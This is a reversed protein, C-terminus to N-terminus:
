YASCYWNQQLSVEIEPRNVARNDLNEIKKKAYTGDLIVL